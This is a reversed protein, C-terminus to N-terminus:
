AVIESSLGVDSTALPGDATRRLLVFKVPLCSGPTITSLARFLRWLVISNAAYAPDSDVNYSCDTWATPPFYRRIAQRSNLRYHVPFVDQEKRTPQLYRLLATHLANPVLRAALGIYGWRNPTRACVWGGPRLVRTFEKALAAPDAIHEFTWDALILDVSHDGLPLRPHMGADAPLIHAEDLTPNTTVVPDVDIGIVRRVKGRLDRLDRVFPRMEEVVGVGRGAGFDLVTMDPHLLANVRTYFHVTTNQRSFGGAHKEPFFHAAVDFGRRRAARQGLLVRAM